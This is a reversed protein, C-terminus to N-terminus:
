LHGPLFWKKEYYQMRSWMLGGIGGFAILLFVMMWAFQSGRSKVTTELEMIQNSIEGVVKPMNDGGFSKTKVDEMHKTLVDFQGKHHHHDDVLLRKLGVISNKMQDVGAKHADPKGNKMGAVTNKTFLRLELGMEKCLGSTRKVRDGLAEVDEVHKVAMPYFSDVHDEVMKVLRKMHQTQSAEDLFHRHEDTLLDKYTDQIVKSVDNVGPIYFFDEGVVDEDHNWVEVSTVSVSDPVYGSKAMGSWSTFGLYGNAQMPFRKREISACSEWESDNGPLKLDIEVLSATVRLKMSSAAMTNRLKFGKANAMPLDHGAASSLRTHGDNTVYSCRPGGKQSNLSVVAGIGKFTNKFGSFTYDERELGALWTKGKIISKEDYTSSINEYVYWLGFSQDMPPTKKGLTKFHVIVEFDGTKMPLKSFAFGAREKTDPNMLLHDRYFVSSGSVTWSQLLSEYELPM